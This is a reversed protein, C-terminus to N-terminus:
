FLASLEMGRKWEAREWNRSDADELTVPFTKSHLLLFSLPVKLMILGLHKPPCQKRGGAPDSQQTSPEGKQILPRKEEDRM